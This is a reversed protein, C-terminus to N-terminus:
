NENAAPEGKARVDQITARIVRVRVNDALEVTAEDDTLKVVKGIMGGATIVTDGRRLNAVMQRHAAVRQQQPRIAFFYMVAIILFLPVLQVLFDAGGGGAAQAYAPTILGSLTLM